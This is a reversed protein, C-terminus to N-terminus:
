RTMDTNDEKMDEEEEEDDDDPYITNGMKDVPLESEIDDYENNEYEDDSYTPM